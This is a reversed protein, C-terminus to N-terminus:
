FSVLDFLSIFFFFIFRVCYLHSSFLKLLFFLAVSLRLHSETQKGGQFNISKEQSHKVTVQSSFISKENTSFIRLLLALRLSLDHWFM